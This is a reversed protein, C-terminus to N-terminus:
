KPSGSAKQQVPVIPGAKSAPLFTPAEANASASPPASASSAVNPEDLRSAQPASRCAQVVLFVLVGLALVLSAAKFSPSQM